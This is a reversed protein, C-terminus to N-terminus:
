VREVLEVVYGDPDEVFAVRRGIDEMTTPETVVSPDSHDVLREFTEDTSDVGVALHDFGGAPGVPDDSDPDYKFQFEGDDGGVYVNRVGDSTFEWNLELGLGDVYFDLTADIDSVRLATHIVDNTM